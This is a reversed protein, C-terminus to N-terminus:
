LECFDDENVVLSSIFGVKFSASLHGYRGSTAIPLLSIGITQPVTESGHVTSVGILQQDAIMSEVGAKENGTISTVTVLPTVM